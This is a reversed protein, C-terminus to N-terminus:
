EMFCEVFIYTAIGVLGAWPYFDALGVRGAVSTKTIPKKPLAVVSRQAGEGRGEGALPSPAKQSPWAVRTM